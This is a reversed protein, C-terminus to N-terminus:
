RLVAKALKPMIYKTCIDRESFEKINMTGAERERDGWLIARM